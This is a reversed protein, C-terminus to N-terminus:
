SGEPSPSSFGDGGVREEDLPISRCSDSADGKNKRRSWPLHFLPSYLLVEALRKARRRVGM